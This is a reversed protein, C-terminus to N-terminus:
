GARPRGRRVLGLGLAAILLSLAGRPSSPEGPTTCGCDGDEDGLGAGNAGTGASAGAGGVGSDGGQAGAGGGAGGMGGTGPPPPAPGDVTITQSTTAVGGEDDRVLLTVDYTGGFPYSKNINRGLGTTGDGFYWEWRMIRGDSDDSADASFDLPNAPPTAPVFSATPYTSSDVSVFFQQTATATNGDMDDVSASLTVLTDMPLDLPPALALIFAGDENRYALDSLNEGAARMGGGLAVDFSVQLSASDVGSQGDGYLVVIRAFRAWDQVDPGTIAIEPGTTDAGGPSAVTASVEESQRSATNETGVHAVTYHYTVGATATADTYSIRGGSLTVDPDNLDATTTQLLIPASFGEDQFPSFGVTKVLEKDRAELGAGTARYVRYYRATSAFPPPDWSVTVGGGVATATLNRPEDAALGSPDVYTNMLIRVDGGSRGIWVDYSGDGDLDTVDVDNGLAQSTEFILSSHTTDYTLGGAGDNLFVQFHTYGSMNNKAFGLVDLDGDYDIDIVDTNGGAIEPLDTFGADDWLTASMDTFNGNGDNIGIVHAVVPHGGAYTFGCRGIVVDLDGDGDMDGLTFGQGFGSCTPKLPLGVLTYNGAGDNRALLIQDGGGHQLLLDFDGDGDVDGSAGGVIYDTNGFNLGRASSQESMAGTGDNIFLSMQVPGGCSAVACFAHTVLLDVDGDGEVDTNVINLASRKGSTIVWGVSFRGGRNIQATLPEGNGGAIGDLDGDGDLDAFQFADEGWGSAGPDGRLLFGVEARAPVMLGGGTNFLLGYRAGLIRDPLGDGDIDGMDGDYYNENSQGALPNSGVFSFTDTQLETSRDVLGGWQALATPAVALTAATAAIRLTWRRYIM